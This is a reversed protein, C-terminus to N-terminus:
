LWEDAMGRGVDFTGSPITAEGFTRRMQIFGGEEEVVATGTGRM